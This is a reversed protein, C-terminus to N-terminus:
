KAVEVIWGAEICEAEMAEWSGRSVGSCGYGDPTAYYFSGEGPVISFPHLTGKAKMYMRHAEEATSFGGLSKPVGNVVIKSTFKGKSKDWYAGLLGTSLNNKKAGKLNQQNGAKPIDRLNCLRNDSRNGNIHDIEFKPWEGHVWLWAIRHAKYQKRNILLITYGQQDTSGLKRGAFTGPTTKLSTFVGTIPDYAYRSRVFEASLDSRFNM